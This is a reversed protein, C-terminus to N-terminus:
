IICSFVYVWRSKVSFPQQFILYSFQSVKALMTVFYQVYLAPLVSLIEYDLRAESSTFLFLSIMMMLLTWEGEFVGWVQASIKYLFHEFSLTQSVSLCVTWRFDDMSWLKEHCRAPPPSPRSSWSPNVDCTTPCLATLGGSQSSATSGWRSWRRRGPSPSTGRPLSTLFSRTRTTWRCAKLRPSPGSPTSTRPMFQRPTQCSLPRLSGQPSVVRSSVSTLCQM